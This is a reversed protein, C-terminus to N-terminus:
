FSLTTRRQNQQTKMYELSWVSNHKLQMAHELTESLLMSDAVQAIPRLPVMVVQAKPQSRECRVLQQAQTAHRHFVVPVHPVPHRRRGKAITPKVGDGENTRHESQCSAAAFQLPGPVATRQSGSWTISASLGESAWTRPHLLSVRRLHHCLPARM